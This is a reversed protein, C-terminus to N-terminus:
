QSGPEGTGDQEEANIEAEARHWYEDTHADPSGAQEWLEYARQRIREERASDVPTKEIRTAGGIAPPDSAPFTGEVAKDIQSESQQAASEQETAKTAM